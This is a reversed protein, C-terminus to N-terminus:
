WPGQRCCAASGPKPLWRHVPLVHSDAVRLEFDLAAPLCLYCFDLWLCRRHLRCCTSPLLCCPRRPVSHHTLAAELLTLPLLSEQPPSTGAAMPLVRLFRPGRSNKLSLSLGPQLSTIGLSSTVHTPTETQAPDMDLRSLM